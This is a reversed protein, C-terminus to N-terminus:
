HEEEFCELLSHRSAAPQDPLTAEIWIGDSDKMVRLIKLQEESKFGWPIHYVVKKRTLYMEAERTHSMFTQTILSAFRYPRPPM